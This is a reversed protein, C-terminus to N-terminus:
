ASGEDNAVLIDREAKFRGTAEWWIFAGLAGLAAMLVINFASICATSLILSAWYVSSMQGLGGTAMGLSGLIQAAGEPGVFVGNIVAGLIQGFFMGVGAIAAAKAGAKVAARREFYGDFVGTLYGAAIGLIPTICPLLFPSLLTLVFSFVIAVGGIIFGSKKM